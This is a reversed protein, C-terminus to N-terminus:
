TETERKQYEGCWANEGVVPFGNDGPPPFRYCQGNVNPQPYRHFYRCEDCTGRETKARPMGLNDTTTELVKFDNLWTHISQKWDMWAGPNAFKLVDFALAEVLLDRAKIALMGVIDRDLKSM